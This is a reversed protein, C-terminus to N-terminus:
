QRPETVGTGLIKVAPFGFGWRHGWHRHDHDGDHDRDGDHGYGICTFCPDVIIPGM